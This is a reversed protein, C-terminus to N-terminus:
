RFLKQAVDYFDRRFEHWGHIGDHVFFTADYGRKKMSEVFNKNRAFNTNNEGDGVFFKVRKINAPNTLVGPYQKDYNALSNDDWGTSTFVLYDFKDLNPIAVEPLTNPYSLGGFARNASGTLARFNKETYPIVDEVLDKAFLASNKSSEASGPPVAFIFPMVIIMPKAKGEALLNDMILNARGIAIWGEDTDGGGHLLYLVPYRDRSTEYGPPLYVHMRRVKSLSKSYYWIIRVDGHPVNRLAEWDAEAGPVELESQTTVRGPKIHGNGPDPLPVGDVIFYYDYFGPALPGVTLSWLGQDDKKLPETHNPLKWLESSLIVESAKPAYLRFTVRRDPLVVPGQQSAAAAGQGRGRDTVPAAQRRGPAGGRGGPEDQSSPLLRAQVASSAFDEAKRGQAMSIAVQFALLAMIGARM